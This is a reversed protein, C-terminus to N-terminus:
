VALTLIEAAGDRVAITHEFHASVARDETVATWGDDLVEVDSGGMNVMPEIALTMGTKLRPGKGPPGFNPVQPEEHMRRGIGHGVFRRVVSFGGAVAESEIAHSIDSLRGGARAADIAKLLARETTDVLKILDPDAVGIMVTRAVDGVFGNAIVGVDVSVVDGLRIPREGPIGHVVEENVSVCIHGPYGRYGLFASKVGMGAMADAAIASMEGTTIGPVISEAVLNCVKAAIRGASRMGALEDDNKIVIM